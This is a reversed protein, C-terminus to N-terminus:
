NKDLKKEKYYEQLKKLALEGAEIYTYGKSLYEDLFEQYKTSNTM